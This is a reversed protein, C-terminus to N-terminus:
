CSRAWSTGLKFDLQATQGPASTWRGSASECAASLLEFHALQELTSGLDATGMHQVDSGCSSSSSGNSDLLM